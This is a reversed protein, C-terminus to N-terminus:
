GESGPDLEQLTNWIAELVSDTEELVQFNWFRLVRFGQSNLWNTREQDYEVQTSHQGGDLEIILKTEFCVFDVIYTGIPAQRRFKKGRFQRLKLFTWLKREADTMDKRLDRAFDRNMGRQELRFRSFELTVPGAVGWGLGGGCTPLSDSALTELYDSTM